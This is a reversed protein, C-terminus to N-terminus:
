RTICHDKSFSKELAQLLKSMDLDYFGSCNMCNIEIIKYEDQFLCIDLVFARAPSYLKAMKKAFIYAEENNDHNQYNVRRGIKYQSITVPEGDVIWCRIEQQIDKTPAVLIKTEDTLNQVLNSDEIERTWEKWAERSFVQGSFSKTDQTPRAFFIEPLFEPLPERFSIIKGDSNLMNSGYYPAYVEINHNDNYMSGPNWDYKKAVVALNNSGFCWVDKRDTKFELEYTFPRFPIVEYELGYKELYNILTNYHFEKFLNEQIIYYM